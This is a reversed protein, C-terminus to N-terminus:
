GLLHTITFRAVASLIEEVDDRLRWSRARIAAAV